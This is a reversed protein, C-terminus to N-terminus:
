FSFWMNATTSYVFKFHQDKTVSSITQSMSGGIFGLSAIDQGFSYEVSQGDTPSSPLVIFLTTLSASPNIINVVKTTSIFAGETAAIYAFTTLPVNGSTDAAVGNISKILYFPYYDLGDYRLGGNPFQFSTPSGASYSSPYIFNFDTGSTMTRLGIRAYSHGTSPPLGSGSTIKFIPNSPFISSLDYTELGRTRLTHTTTYAAASNGSDTVSQLGPIPSSGGGGSGTIKVRWTTDGKVIDFSSDTKNTITFGVANWVLTDVDYYTYVNAGAKMYTLGIPFSDVAVGGAYNVYRTSDFNYRTSDYGAGGSGSGISFWNVGNSKYIPPNPHGITDQPRITLSGIYPTMNNFLTDKVPIQFGNIAKLIPIAYISKDNSISPRGTPNNIIQGYSALANIVLIIALIIKNM